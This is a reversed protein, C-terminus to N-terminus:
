SRTLSKQALPNVPPFFDAICYETHPTLTVPREDDPLATPGELSAANKRKLVGSVYALM